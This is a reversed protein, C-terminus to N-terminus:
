LVSKICKPKITIIWEAIQKDKVFSVVEWGADEVEQRIKQIETESFGFGCARNSTIITTSKGQIWNKIAKNIDNLFEEVKVENFTKQKEALANSAKIIMTVGNRNAM